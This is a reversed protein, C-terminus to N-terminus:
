RQVEVMRAMTWDDTNRAFQGTGTVRRWYLNCTYTDAPVGGVYTIGMPSASRTGTPNIFLKVVDFDGIGGGITVGIMAASNTVTNIFATMSVRIEIDSDDHNKRFTWSGDGTPVNTASTMTTVPAAGNIGAEAWQIVRTGAFDIESTVMLRPPKPPGSPSNFWVDHDKFLTFPHQAFHDMQFNTKVNAAVASTPDGPVPYSVNGFVMARDDAGADMANSIGIFFYGMEIGTVVDTVYGILAVTLGYAVLEPPTSAGFVMRQTGTTADDPMTISRRRTFTGIVTWDVGLRLLGVRDGEAINVDGFVKVPAALSSGDYTVLATTPGTRRVV